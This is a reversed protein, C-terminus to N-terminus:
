ALPGTFRPDAPWKDVAEELVDQAEAVRHMRLLAQSLWAYLQPLDEGNVLATQWAGAAQPDNGASAYVVGLYALAAHQRYRAPRGRQAGNRGEFVERGFRRM